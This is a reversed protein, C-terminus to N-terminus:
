NGRDALSVGSVSDATERINAWNRQRRNHQARSCAAVRNAPNIVRPTRQVGDQHPSSCHTCSLQSVGRDRDRKGGRNRAVAGVRILVRLTGGGFYLGRGGPGAVFQRVSPERRADLSLVKGVVM